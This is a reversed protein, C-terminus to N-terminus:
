SIKFNEFSDFLIKMREFLNEFIKPAIELMSLVLIPQPYSLRLELLAMPIGTKMIHMAANKNSWSNTLKQFQETDKL